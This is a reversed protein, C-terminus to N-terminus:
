GTSAHEMTEESPSGLGRCFESSRNRHHLSNYIATPWFCAMCNEDPHSGLDSNGIPVLELVLMAKTSQCSIALLSSGLRPNELSVTGGIRSQYRAAKYRPALGTDLSGCRHGGLDPHHVKSTNAFLLVNTKDACPPIFPYLLYRVLKTLRLSRGVNVDGKRQLSRSQLIGLIVFCASPLISLITEEFLLSFDLGRRCSPAMPGMNLDDPCSSGNSINHLWVNTTDTAPWDGVWPHM